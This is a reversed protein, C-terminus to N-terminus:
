PQINLQNDLQQSLYQLQYAYAEETTPTFPIEAWQMVGVTAHFLEHNIVDVKTGYPMWIIIPKGDQTPFTVARAAFDEETVTSDLNARVYDTAFQIDDTILVVVDLDFTGGPLTVLQYKTTMEAKGGAYILFFILLSVVVIGITWDIVSRM